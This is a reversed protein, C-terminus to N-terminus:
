EKPAPKGAAADTEAAPTQSPPAAAAEVLPAVPARQRAYADFNMLLDVLADLQQTSTGPYLSQDVGGQHPADPQYPIVIPMGTYPLISVPEAVWRRVYGPRFRQYVDALNPGKARDSTRPDYDGVIHCTVCYNKDTVIRMAATLRDADAPREADPQTRLQGRYAQEAHQLYARDRRDIIEYPYAVRDQAAFYDVLAGAEAPSLNYKPMRMLSAPRIAYPALLYNHLWEPRVKAGEGLLSPPLWGWAQSGKANLNASKELRAAHPLLYQTLFGGRALQRAALQDGRVNVATGGVHYGHGDLAVPQWIQFPYELTTPLYKEDEFLEDGAEDFVLPRGDDGLTPVGVLTAHLLGRADGQQSRQLEEKRFEYNVFPFVPKEPQPRFEGPAYELRWKQPELVHCSACRYKDLLVQGEIIASRSSDPASVYKDAPPQAVLGLVFTIIAERQDADFPFQPMRLRDNYAKNPAVQYDYSRPETLKQFIFGIRSGAALQQRFYDFTAPDDSENPDIGARRALSPSFEDGQKRAPSTRSQLYANINEFSLLATDRRGWDSLQPGIQKATEFGPIDHCGFCGYKALSKSGIYRLKQQVSLATMGEGDGAQRFDKKKAENPVIL